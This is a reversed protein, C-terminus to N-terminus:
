REPGSTGLVKKGAGLAQVAFYRLRSRFAITTEFGQRGATVGVPRLDHPSSGGLVRWARVQTAGNWSAYMTVHGRAGSSRAVALSPRTRPQGIWPFRFARYSGVRLPYAGNFIQRGTPSFETFEHQTGWGVFVDGNPLPQTSGGASALLPPYHTFRKILSVERTAADIRLFEASSQSEREPLAGDDFLSLMSGHLRADHQWWFTTGPGMKFSSHKGGLTWIVKGTTRSIEYLACTDRASILLNGDPLPQISNLHFYDYFHEGATYRMYSADIPVHGLAHWEWLVTGTKVDVEQLVYDAVPGKAPGGVGTLSGQTLVVSDLYATGRSTLQFDHEDTAYGYGAHVTAVRQYSRNMIVDGSPNSVVNGGARGYWWTLVPKGLYREVGVNAVGLGGNIRDFWVLQGSANLIMPGAQPSNQPGIFIDGSTADPDPTVKVVPPRLNPESHFYQTQGYSPSSMWSETPIGRAPTRDDPLSAPTPPESIRFAFSLKRAGRDGSATGAQPSRLNAIVRVTEGAKFPRAPVFTTGSGAPLLELRGGHRGSRSGTVTVSRLEAPRLASFIVDTHPAADPTGPFPIVHLDVGSAARVPAAVGLAVLCCAALARKLCSFGGRVSM